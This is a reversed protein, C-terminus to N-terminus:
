LEWYLCSGCLSTWKTKAPHKSWFWHDCDRCRILYPKETM